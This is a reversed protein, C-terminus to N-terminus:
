TVADFGAQGRDRGRFIADYVLEPVAGLGPCVSSGGSLPSHALNFVKPASLLGITINCPLRKVRAM